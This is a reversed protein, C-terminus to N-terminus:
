KYSFTKAFLFFDAFCKMFAAGIQLLTRARTRFLPKVKGLDLTHNDVDFFILKFMIGKDNLLATSDDDTQHPQNLFHQLSLLSSRTALCSHLM